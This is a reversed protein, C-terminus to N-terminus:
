QRTISWSSQVVLRREVYDIFFHIEMALQYAVSQRGKGELKVQSQRMLVLFGPFKLLGKSFSGFRQYYISSRLINKNAHIALRDM